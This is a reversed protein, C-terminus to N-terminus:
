GGVGELGAPLYVGLVTDIPIFTKDGGGAMFGSHTTGEGDLKEIM